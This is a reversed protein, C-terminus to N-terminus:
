SKLTVLEYSLWSSDPEIERIYELLADSDYDMGASVNYDWYTTTKRGLKDKDVKDPAAYTITIHGLYVLSNPVPSFKQGVNRGVNYEGTDTRKTYEYSELVYNDTGNSLFYFYGDDTTLSFRKDTTANLIVLKVGRTFCCPKLDFFGDPYDLVLSGIVLSSGGEEPPPFGACAGLVLLLVMPLVWILKKM